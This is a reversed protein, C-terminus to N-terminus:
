QNPTIREVIRAIVISRGTVDDQLVLGVVRMRIPTNGTLDGVGSLNVFRTRESTVVRVPGGFLAGTIGAVDLRFSPGVNSGPVWAGELGQQHLIVRRADLSGDANIAGGIAVRQGAVLSARNFLFPAFPLRLDHILFRENGDFGFTSIRGVQVNALDPIESRILVDIVNAPGPSPRVSTILGGVAFRDRTLVEVNTAHLRLTGRQLQGSVEVITNSNLTALSEGDEFVAQADTVVTIQRGHPGQMVFTGGAVDVSVVGGRLEDIEAEPADPPVVRLSLRPNIQGTVQGTADLMISDALHLDVVLVVLGGDTVVLPNPLNVTVTAQALSANIVQVAPPNVSTDLVSIMPSALTATFSTYTGVPISRLDLLNRLGNLRSFEIEEPATLISVTNTGDSVTLGTVTVRFALINPLPADTGVVAVNGMSAGQIPPPAPTQSGGGCSNLAVSILIVVLIRLFRSSQM